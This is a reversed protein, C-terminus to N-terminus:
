GRIQTELAHSLHATLEGRKGTGIPQDNFMTIPVIGGTTNTLWAEEARQLTAVPLRERVKLPIDEILELVAGRTVGPIAGEDEGPAYVTGDLLAFVNSSSAEAIRDAENLLLGDHATMARAERRASIYPLFSLTKVASLPIRSDKRQKSVIVQIGNSYYQMPYPKFKKCLGHVSFGRGTDLVDEMPGTTMMVRVYLEGGFAKIGAKTLAAAAARFESVLSGDLNIAQLGRELRKAHEELRFLKGNSARLTEFVGDGLLFGRDNLSVRAESLPLVKGDQYALGHPAAPKAKKARPTM